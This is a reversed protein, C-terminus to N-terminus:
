RNVLDNQSIWLIRTFSDAPNEFRITASSPSGKSELIAFDFYDDEGRGIAVNEFFISDGAIRYNGRIESVGFCISKEKFRGNAKLQFTTTCGVAGKAQAILLSKVELFELSIIGLSFLVALTLLLGSIGTTLNQQFNKFKEKVLVSVKLSFWIVLGGFCLLLVLPLLLSLLGLKGEWFSATSVLLFFVISAILLRNQKMTVNM